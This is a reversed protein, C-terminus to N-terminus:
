ISALKKREPEIGSGNTKLRDIEIEDFVERAAQIANIAAPFGAYLAMQLMVEIIEEKTVGVNLAAQVHVKLQNIQGTAALAAITAIERSRLDLAPRGYIDNFAFEMVLKELDPHLSKLREISKEAGDGKIEKFRETGEEYRNMTKEM